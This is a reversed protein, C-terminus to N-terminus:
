TVLDRASNLIAGAPLDVEFGREVFWYMSIAILMISGFRMVYRPYLSWNRVVYLLPFVICVIAIQGFEVGINFGLLSHLMYKPPIGIEGLVTAFGFGHFLGFAFVVFWIRGRFIPYILEAAAIAISLAIISEVLRSPITVAGLAALSLTMTHAITFLTVVKIVYFLAPRFGTVPIWSRGDRRMASPLLLALLFLIHDIGIWIHHTGLRVMQVFGRWVSSDSLDLRQSTNRGSFTLSVNAENEFTGTQWNTEIVLLGRHSPVEDFLIAYDVDIYTPEPDLAPFVFHYVFYQTLPIATLEYDTLPLSKTSVGEPAFGVRAALYSRIQEAYPALDDRTLSGDDPLDTGLIRNLDPINIEIRGSVSDGGVNLFVYSQEMAHALSKQIPLLLLASVLVATALWGGDRIRTTTM